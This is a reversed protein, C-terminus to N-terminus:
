RTQLYVVSQDAFGNLYYKDPESLNAVAFEIQHKEYEDGAEGTLKEDFSTSTISVAEPELLYTALPKAYDFFLGDSHQNNIWKSVADDSANADFLVITATRTFDSTKNDFEIMLVANQNDFHYIKLTSRFRVTCFCQTIEITNSTNDSVLLEREGDIPTGGAADNSIIAVDATNANNSHTGSNGGSGCSACFTLLIVPM